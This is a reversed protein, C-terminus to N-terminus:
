LPTVYAGSIGGDVLFTSATMFSSEDSALFLVANAMEEPEGFRGMATVTQSLMNTVGSIAAAIAALVLAPTYAVYASGYVLSLYLDGLWWAGLVVLGNLAVVVVLLRLLLPRLGGAESRRALRPIAANGLAVNLVQGIYAVSMAAGFFGVTRVDHTRELVYAPLNVSAALLFAALGIPATHRVLGKLASTPLRLRVPGGFRRAVPLDHLLSQLLLLLLVLGLGVLVSRALLLGVGLGLASLLGRLARSRGISAMREAKQAPAVLIDSLAELGRVGGVALVVAATTQGLGSGWAVVGVVLLALPVSVLRVSLYDEYRWRGGDIVYAPRLHLNTLLIAPTAIAMGLTYQGLAEVSGLRALLVLVAFMGAAYLGEGLLSWVADRWLAPPRPRGAATPSRPPTM